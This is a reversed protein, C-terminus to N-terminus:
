ELVAPRVGTFQFEERAKTEEKAETKHTYYHQRTVTRFLSYSSCLVSKGEGFYFTDVSSELISPCVLCNSFLPSSVADKDVQM